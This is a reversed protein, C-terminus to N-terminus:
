RVMNGSVVVVASSQQSNAMLFAEAYNSVGQVTSGHNMVKGDGDRLTFLFNIGFNLVM